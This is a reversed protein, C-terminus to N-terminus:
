LATLYKIELENTDEFSGVNATIDWPKGTFSIETSIIDEVSTTPVSIQAHAITFDVSPVVGSAAGMHFILQFNNSVSGEIKALMDQLLGGSGQAGSDLYATLSGSIVRNGAFGALPLNVIALEEPTLYTFNNELTLTAGTIPVSYIIGSNQTAAYLKVTDGVGVGATWDLGDASLDEKVVLTNGTEDISVITAWENPDLTVNRIRGGIYDAEVFGTGLTFAELAVVTTGDVQPTNTQIENPVGANSLAADLAVDNDVLELTSLKNRLFTTTTTAPVAKFDIAQATGGEKLITHANDDENVRSGQGSWNVQAIGDISFDVEGASVNFQEVTYTTNELVFFLTLTMLENVNSTGLAFTIDTATSNYTGISQDANPSATFGDTDGMASAWLIKEVCNGVGSDNYGRVYTSFSVDVPNLATNFSLTGRVPDTGAENVGVETSAVDQSFSYGDLVKIEFTNTADMAGLNFGDKDLTSVFVRTSRSLSRAM